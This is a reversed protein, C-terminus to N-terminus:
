PRRQTQPELHPYTADVVKQLEPPLEAYWFKMQYPDRQFGAHNGRLSCFIHFHSRPQIGFGWDRGDNSDWTLDSKYLEMRVVVGECRRGNAYRFPCTIADASSM